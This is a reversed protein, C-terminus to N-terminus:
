ENTNRGGPGFNIHATEMLMFLEIFLVKQLLATKYGTNDLVLFYNIENYNFTFLEM